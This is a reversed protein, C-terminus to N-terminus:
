VEYSSSCRRKPPATRPVEAAMKRMYRVRPSPIRRCAAASTSDTAAPTASHHHMRRRPAAMIRYVSSPPTVAVMQVSVMWINTYRAPAITHRTATMWSRGSPTAPAMAAALAAPFSCIMSVENSGVRALQHACGNVSHAPMM